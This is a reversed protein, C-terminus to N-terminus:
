QALNPPSSSKKQNKANKKLHVNKRATQPIKKQHPSVKLQTKPTKKPARPIKQASDEIYLPM